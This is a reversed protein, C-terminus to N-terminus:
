PPAPPSERPKKMGRVAEVALAVRFGVDDWHTDAVCGDRCASRCEAPSMFFDGGRIVRRGEVATDSRPNKVSPGVMKQYALPDWGDEVWEWVNGHVDFLGFPNAARTGVPKVTNGSNNAGFWATRALSEGDDGSWFLTTTGARCAFEWEAETPLRYGVGGTPFTSIATIRYAAPLQEAESLRNCFRTADFWTMNEIPWDRLDKGVIREKRLGTPSFEAPNTGTLREYHRQTVEHVGLYFPKTLVVRHQPGESTVRQPRAAETATHLLPRAAEIEEPTSGMTFEGPPILRFKMGMSNTFDEPVGLYTAWAQQYKRAQESDFPAIAPRPADAPWPSEREGHSAARNSGEPTQPPSPELHIRIPKREGTSLTVDQTKAKFGAAKILLSREGPAVQVEFCKGDPGSKVTATAGDVLVEANPPLDELVIVGEKTSLRFAGGAWLLALGTLVLCTALGAPILWRRRNMTKPASQGIAPPRALQELTEAVVQASSPRKAPAKALLDMILESLTPPLGAEVQAPPPPMYTSIALLTSITDTGSFPPEGTAMRYLVCGLSFLDCRHDVDRGQAQEPSMYAPTGVIAGDQTLESLAGAARVLGFDLVKVRGTEAELWVNAPKIDRHILGRRHAASLGLAMERGIRLIEGVPLKGEHELRVELTEGELFEMALFPVGRDEGVQYVSVIHDHRISATARAERLFRHRAGERCALTPLMAKLAVIRELDPDESRFVIGMRGVGLVQLVRYSGLRGLEGEAEPPDLWNYLGRAPPEGVEPLIQTPTLGHAMAGPAAASELGLRSLRDILQAISKSVGVDLRAGAHRILDALPDHEPISGFLRGCGECSELHTLLPEAELPQAQGWALRRYEDATPCFATEHM